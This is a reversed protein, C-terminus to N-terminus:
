KKKEQRYSRLSYYLYYGCLIIMIIFNSVIDIPKTALRELPLAPSIASIFIPYNKGILMVVVGLVINLVFVSGIFIVAHSYKKYLDFFYLIIHTIILIPLTAWLYFWITLYLTRGQIYVIGFLVSGFRYFGFFLLIGLVASYIVNHIKIKKKAANKLDNKRNELNYKLGIVIIALNILIMIILYGPFPSPKILSKYIFASVVSTIVGVVGNIVLYITYLNTLSIKYEYRYYRILFIFIIIFDLSIMFMPISSIFYCDHVGYFMNSLDSSLLNGAYFTILSGLIINVILLIIIDKKKM